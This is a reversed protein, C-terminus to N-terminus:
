ESVTLYGARQAIAVAGLIALRDVDEANSIESIQRSAGRYRTLLHRFISCRPPPGILVFPTETAFGLLPFDRLAQLDETAIAADLFLRRLPAPIGLLVVM